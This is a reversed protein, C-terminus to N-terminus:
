PRQLHGIADMIETSVQLYLEKVRSRSAELLEARIREFHLPAGIRVAVPRPRPWRQNRGYAEYTGFVRAPVVPAQSKLVVLGVGARAPQLSGDPTRTGEPFLLVGDGQALRELITKVGKGSTGDRDVPVAGVGRLVWGFLPNAFLTERALYSIPRSCVSGLLLPDMFSAHNSALIFPGSAPVNEM